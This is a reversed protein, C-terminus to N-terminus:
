RNKAIEIHFSKNTHFDFSLCMQLLRLCGGGGIKKMMRGSGQDLMHGKSTYVWKDESRNQGIRLLKLMSLSTPTSILHLKIALCMQLLRLSDTGGIKKMM